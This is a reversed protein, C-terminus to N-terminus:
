KANEKLEKIEYIPKLIIGGVFLILGIVFVRFVEVDYIFSTDRMFSVLSSVLIVIGGLAFIIHGFHFKM